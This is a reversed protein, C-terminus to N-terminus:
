IKERKAEKEAGTYYKGTNGWQMGQKKGHREAFYTYVYVYAISDRCVRTKTAKRTYSYMYPETTYLLPFFLSFFSTFNYM